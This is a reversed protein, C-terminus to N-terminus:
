SKIKSVEENIKKTINQISDIEYKKLAEKKDKFVYLKEKSTVIFFEDLLSHFEVNSLQSNKDNLSISRVSDSEKYKKALKEELIEPSILNTLENYLEDNLKRGSFYCFRSSDCWLNFFYRAPKDLIIEKDLENLLNKLKSKITRKNDKWEFDIKKDIEDEFVHLILKSKSEARVGFQKDKWFIEFQYDEVVSDAHYPHRDTKRPVDYTDCDFYLKEERLEEFCDAIKELLEMERNISMHGEMNENENEKIRGYVFFM